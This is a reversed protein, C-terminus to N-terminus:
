LDYARRLEKPTVELWVGFTVSFGGTLRVALLARIFSGVGPVELMDWDPSGWAKPNGIRMQLPSSNTQSALEFTETM